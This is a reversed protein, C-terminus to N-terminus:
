ANKQNYGSRCGKNVTISNEVVVGRADLIDKYIQSGALYTKSHLNCYTKHIM